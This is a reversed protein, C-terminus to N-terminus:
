ASSIPTRPFVGPSEFSTITHFPNLRQPDVGLSSVPPCSTRLAAENAQAHRTERHQACTILLTPSIWVM